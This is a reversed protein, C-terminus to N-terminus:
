NMNTLQNLEHHKGRRKHELIIGCGLQNLQQFFSNLTMEKPSMNTGTLAMLLECVATDDGQSLALRLESLLFKRYGKDFAQKRKPDSMIRDFTSKYTM